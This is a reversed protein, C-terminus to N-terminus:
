IYNISIIGLSKSQKRKITEKKYIYVNKYICNDDCIHCDIIIITEKHQQKVSASSMIIYIYIVYYTIINFHLM